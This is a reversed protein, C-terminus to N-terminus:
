VPPYFVMCPVLPSAAPPQVYQCISSSAAAARGGTSGLNKHPTKSGGDELLLFVLGEFVLYLSVVFYLIPSDILFSTPFYDELILHNVSLFEDTAARLTLGCYIM